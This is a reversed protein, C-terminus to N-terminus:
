EGKEGVWGGDVWGCLRTYAIANPEVYSEVDVLNLVIALFTTSSAADRSM